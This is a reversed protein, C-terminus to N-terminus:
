MPSAGAGPAPTNAATARTPCQSPMPETALLYSSYVGDAGVLPPHPIHICTHWADRPRCQAIGQRQAMLLDMSAGLGAPGHPKLTMPLPLSLTQPRGKSGDRACLLTKNKSVKQVALGAADCVKAILDRLRIADSWSPGVSFPVITLM